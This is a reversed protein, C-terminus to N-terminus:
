RRPDPWVCGLVRFYGLLAILIIMIVTGLFEKKCVTSRRAASHQEAARPPRCVGLAAGAPAPPVALSAEANRFTVEPGRWKNPVPTECHRHRKKSAHVACARGGAAVAGTGACFTSGRRARGPTAGSGASEARPPRLSRANGGAGRARPLNAAPLRAGCGGQAPSRGRAQGPLPARRLLGHASGRAPGRRTGAAGRPRRAPGHKGEPAGPRPEPASHTRRGAWGQATRSSPAPGASPPRPGRPWWSHHTPPSRPREAAMAPETPGDPSQPAPLARGPPGAAGSGSTRRLGTGAPRPGKDGRRDGGPGRGHRPVPSKPRHAGCHAASRLRGQALAGQGETPSGVGAHRSM